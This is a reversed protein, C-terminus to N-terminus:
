VPYGGPPENGHQIDTVIQRDGARPAVLLDNEAERIIRPAQGIAGWAVARPVLKRMGENRNTM